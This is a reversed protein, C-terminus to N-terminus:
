LAPQTWGTEDLGEGSAITDALSGGDLHADLAACVEEFADAFVPFAEYLERGMGARQAGQGTFLFATKGPVPRGTVTGAGGGTGAALARLGELLEARDAGVVVGRHELAPRRALARAIDRADAAGDSAAHALLREAQARLADPTRASVQWDLLPLEADDTVDPVHPEPRPAEEIIVHANTGSVGFSSVGARRPRDTEPWERAETLLEVAGASWDVHPTPEDVHLTRPMVGNRMAQIVKIIGSVGAAAQAHGMNSKLSGLWLPRDAPRDQGYTALLAQAEIPDGLKTGTGHAEVLDVDAASLGADALAQRIVRQQSPGNPATLGNSAGDQNVATGRLVALVEHGNRRADSLREVLLLGVAESWGTGDASAAFAKCRGDTALGRQRSFEVFGDPTALITVGGALALECEGSRVARAALHLAVLSSSCATDVTVAPGEFGFTYSVRGSLVSPQNGTATYGEIEDSDAGIAYGTHFAGLFVGVGRGSLATVDIGGREFTEWATELVVRQQPDMALAERPSIGFFAADFRDAAGLFGGKVSYTKGPTGPEPDYLEDTNWGRDAPFDSIAERGEAVLQWLDEPSDLGAPFRGAMSVIVVPDDDGAEGTRAATAATAATAPAAAAAAETGGLLESLLHAALRQPTPHDFALTASLRVGTSAGLRNRLEVATMSDFGLEKFTRDPAIAAGSSHGLVAAAAECVVDRVADAREAEPLAALREALAGRGPGSGITGTTPEDERLAERVEPLEGILASPRAATFGPAFRAWDVDAVTVTTEDRGVARMLATAALEPDMPPVGLRRMREAAGDAAGMGAGGWSGWAISTATRGQARRRQALADLYANAAAYTSQGGGGWVGASSAILVFADLPRDGLAADLHAAGLVKGALIRHMEDPGTDAVSGTQGVGAAHVVASLPPREPTGDTLGDVLAAVADRDAVDCAAVTVGVGSQELEAVLETVGESAWGRRSTLVLHEAGGRALRRAVRAGIGGTGGTVLVTGRPQWEAAATDREPATAPATVPAHALRRVFVGSARVALQDEGGPGGLATALRRLVRRDLGGAGPGPLDVLGGWLRPYELAAAVGFGWVLAQACDEAAGGPGAGVAGETLSWVRAGAGEGAGAGAGAADLAPLLRALAALGRTLAPHEPHPRTDLALLSLVGSPAGGTFGALVDGLADFADPDAGAEYVVFEAGQARLGDLVAAARGDALGAPVVALWTGSLAPGTEKALRKWVVRYTWADLTSRLVEGRRWDALIPLAAGLSASDGSGLTEGLAELDGREVAEWFRSEAALAGAEGATGDGAGSAAATGDDALWYRERQFAYTPLEVRRAGSGEYFARWDVAAGRGHLRGLASVLTVAEAASRRQGPVVAIAEADDLTEAAMATLVADPGIELFTTAGLGALTRVGDAFRVAERVHRVWYEPTLLEEGALAGSVNSVVPIAPARFELGEVVARFADLMPEMLPSHFAHSVTLRKTRHGAAKVKEAVALVAQEEGSLVVSAPGNVAAVSVRDGLGELLPLVEAEPAGLAVMAGGAPLAQMLRGRAAVLASADELTLVGAVHAAAIEGVSHGAVYDPRVGWSEVLRYLAVELAFLAPQTWGTEDLGEGSAITDALSGGDLHADLAACVEEFADAFVPFAEYLERGM